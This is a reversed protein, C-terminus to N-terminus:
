PHRRAPRGSGCRDRGAALGRGRDASVGPLAPQPIAARAAKAAAAPDRGITRHADESQINRQRKGSVRVAAEAPELRLALPFAYLRGDREFHRLGSAQATALLERAYGDKLYKRVDFALGGGLAAAREGVAAAQEAVQPLRKDIDAVNGSRAAARLKKLNAALTNVSKQAQDLEAGFADFAEALTTM